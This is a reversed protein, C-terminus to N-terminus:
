APDHRPLHTVALLAMDDNLAGGTHAVVGDVLLDLLAAPDTLTQGDLGAVPDYFAGAANRAESVGDTYLLLRSGAPFRATRPREPAPALNGLGLPLAPETTLYHACGGPGMVVPPPHGRNILRVRLPPEPPVEVLVATAFGEVPDLTRRARQERVLATELRDCVEALQPECEAAERFAGLLVAVAETAALGKGRVDGVLMRVGYPTERVAYLDGGILTDRQAARYRAAVRLAGVRAPPEPVVARQVAEAVGRATAVRQDRRAVIRNIAVALFSILAVTVVKIASEGLGPETRLHMQAAVTGTALVGYATTAWLPLVPAALLPAAVYFPTLTVHPPSALDLFTGVAILVAPLWALVRARAWWPPASTQM